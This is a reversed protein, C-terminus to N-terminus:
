LLISYWRLNLEPYTSPLQPGPPLHDEQILQNIEIDMAINAIEKNTLHSWDTIHFFAIHLLEHKLLGIKQQSGLTDWFDTNLYLQYNIGLRSVGATPVAKNNWQKNLMILFLGYFPEKLMLDKSAKALEEAKNKM